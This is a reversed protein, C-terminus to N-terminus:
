ERRGKEPYSFVAPDISKVATKHSREQGCAVNFIRMTEWTM